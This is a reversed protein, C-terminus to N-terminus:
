CFMACWGDVPLTVDRYIGNNCSMTGLKTFIEWCWMYKCFTVICVTWISFSRTNGVSFQLVQHSVACLKKCCEVHTFTSVHEKQVNTQRWSTHFLLLSSNKAPGFAINGPRSLLCVQKVSWVVLLHRWVARRWLLTGSWCRVDTVNCNQVNISRDAVSPIHQITLKFWTVYDLSEAGTSTRSRVWIYQKSWSQWCSFFHWQKSILKWQLSHQAHWPSQWCIKSVTTSLSLCRSLKCYIKIQIKIVINSPFTHM